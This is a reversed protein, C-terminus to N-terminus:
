KAQESNALTLCSGDPANHDFDEFRGIEYETTVEAPEGARRFWTQYKTHFESCSCILAM